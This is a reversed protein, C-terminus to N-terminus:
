LLRTTHATNIGRWPRCQHHQLCTAAVEQIGEQLLKRGHEVLGLAQRRLM